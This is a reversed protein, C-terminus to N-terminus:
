YVHNLGNMDGLRRQKLGYKVNKQLVTVSQGEKGKANKMTVNKTVLVTSNTTKYPEVM